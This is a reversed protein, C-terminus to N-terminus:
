KQVGEADQLLSMEFTPIKSFTKFSCYCFIYNNFKFPFYDFQVVAPKLVYFKRAVIQLKQRELLWRQKYCFFQLSSDM